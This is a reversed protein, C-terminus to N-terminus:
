VTLDSRQIRTISQIKFSAGALDVIVILDGNIVPGSWISNTSINVSKMENHETSDAGCEVKGKHFTMLQISDVFIEAVIVKMGIITYRM